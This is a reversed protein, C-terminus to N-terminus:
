SIPQSRIECSIGTGTIPETLGDALTLDAEGRAELHRAGDPVDSLSAASVAFVAPSGPLPPPLPSWSPLPLPVATCTISSLWSPLSRGATRVFGRGDFASQAAIVVPWCLFTLFYASAAHRKSRM